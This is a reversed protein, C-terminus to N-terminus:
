RAPFFYELIERIKARWNTWNHGEPFEAYHVRAGRRELLNSVLRAEIETDHITGTGIYANIDAKSITRLLKIVASDAQFYAPSQAAFNVFQEPQKLAIYTAMLGGMSAGMIARKGASDLALYNKNIFPILEQSLFLLFTDSAGYDSMRYNTTSNHLDTRPDVFIGLVPEIKHASILNDLVINMRGLSLYEGGDLVYVAPLGKRGSEGPPVYVFVPHTRNLIKSVFWITDIRGHPVNQSEEIDKAPIYEPMWLDSNEGLGGVSRLPNLPDLIWTSDVWLKYEVRGDIPIKEKRLFLDTEEVRHMMAASPNWHNLEGPVAVAHGHGRYLFYATNGEVVPVKANALYETILQSRSVSDHAEHLKALFSEFSQGAGGPPAQLNSGQAIALLSVFMAFLGRIM